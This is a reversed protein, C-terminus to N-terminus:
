GPAKVLHHAKEQLFPSLVFLQMWFAVQCAWVVGCIRLLALFLGSRSRAWKARKESGEMSQSQCCEDSNAPIHVLIVYFSIITGASPYNRGFTRISDQCALFHRM